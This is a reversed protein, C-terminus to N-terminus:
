IYYISYIYYIYLIIIYYLIVLHSVETIYYVLPIVSFIISIITIVKYIVQFVISSLLTSFLLGARFRTFNTQKDPWLGIPLLLLRNLNFYRKRICIMKYNNFIQFEETKAFYNVGFRRNEKSRQQLYDECSKKRATGIELYITRNYIYKFLTASESSHSM